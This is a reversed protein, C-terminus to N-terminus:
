ATEDEEKGRTALGVAAAFETGAKLPDFVDSPINFTKKLFASLGKQKAGPGSVAISGLTISGADPFQNSVSKYSHEIDVILNEFASASPQSLVEGDDNLAGRLKKETFAVTQVTYVDRGAAIVLYSDEFGINLLLTLKSPDPVGASNACFVAYLALASPEVAIVNLGAETVEKMKEAVLDRRVAAVFVKKGHHSLGDPSIVAYDISYDEIRRAEIGLAEAVGWTVAGEVEPPPMPPLNLIRFQVDTPSLGIVADGSMWNESLLQRVSGRVNQINKSASKFVELRGDSKGLQIASISGEGLEIGVPSLETARKKKEASLVKLASPPAGGFLSSIKKAAPEQKNREFINKVFDQDKKIEPPKEQM